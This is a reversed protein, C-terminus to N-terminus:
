FFFFLVRLFVGESHLSKVGGDCCGRMESGAEQGM